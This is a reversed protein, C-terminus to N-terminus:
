MHIEIQPHAPPEHPPLTTELSRDHIISKIHVAEIASCAPAAVLRLSRRRRAYKRYARILTAMARASLLWWAAWPSLTNGPSSHLPVLGKRGLTGLASIGPRLCDGLLVDLDLSFFDHMSRIQTGRLVKEKMSLEEQLRVQERRSEM